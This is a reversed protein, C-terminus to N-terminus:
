LAGTALQALAAPLIETADGEVRLDALVDHATAGQNIIVYFAGAAAARRPVSAAPEVELTSGIAMVLDCAAAMELAREMPEIPMSQGFSVTAPKLFGKCHSCKPPQRTQEFERYVPDPPFRRGCDVCETELNTGHLEVVLDPSHGAQQHLGDINQTVVGVLRHMGELQVLARHAANPRARRFDDWGALKFEWHRIRAEQSTLFEQYYVPQWKKWLGRPGRFDPIGSGTSIGAGTFVLIARADRLAEVLRSM